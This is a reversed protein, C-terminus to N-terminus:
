PGLLSVCLVNKPEAKGKFFYLKQLFFVLYHMKAAFYKKSKCFHAYKRSIVYINARM